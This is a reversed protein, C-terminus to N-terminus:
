FTATKNQLYLNINNQKVIKTNKIGVENCQM